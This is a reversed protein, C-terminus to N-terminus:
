EIYGFYDNRDINKEYLNDVTYEIDDPDNNIDRIASNFVKKNQQIHLPVTSIFTNPFDSEGTKPNEFLGRINLMYLPLDAVGLQSDQIKLWAAMGLQSLAYMSTTWIPYGYHRIWKEDKHKLLFEDFKNNDACFGGFQLLTYDKPIAKLYDLFLAMNKLLCIDDEMILINECDQYLAQKIISYHSRTCGYENPLRFRGEDSANLANIITQQFPHKCEYHFEWGIIGLKDFEDVIFKQREEEEVLTLVVARDFYDKLNITDM